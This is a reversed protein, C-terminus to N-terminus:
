IHIVPWIDKLVKFSRVTVYIVLHGLLSLKYYNTLYYFFPFFFKVRHEESQIFITDNLNISLDTRQGFLIQNM